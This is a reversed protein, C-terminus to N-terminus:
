ISGVNFSSRLLECLLQCQQIDEGNSHFYVLVTDSPFDPALLLCPICDSENLRNDILNKNRIASSLALKAEAKIPINLDTKSNLREYFESRKVPMQQGFMKNIKSFNKKQSYNAMLVEPRQTPNIEELTDLNQMSRRINSSAEAFMMLGSKSILPSRVTNVPILMKQAFRQNLQKLSRNQITRTLGQVMTPKLNSIDQGEHVISDTQEWPSREVPPAFEDDPAQLDSSKKTGEVLCTKLDKKSSYRRDLHSKLNPESDKNKRYSDLDQMLKSLTIKASSPKSFEGSTFRSTKIKLRRVDLSHRVVEAQSDAAPQEKSQTLSSTINKLHSLDPSFIFRRQPKPSLDFDLMPKAVQKLPSSLKGFKPSCIRKDKLLSPSKQHMAKPYLIVGEMDPTLGDFQDADNKPVSAVRNAKKMVINKIMFVRKPVLLLQSYFTDSHCTFEPKPFVLFNLEM